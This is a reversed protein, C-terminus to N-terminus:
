QLKVFSNKVDNNIQIVNTLFLKNYIEIWFFQLDHIRKNYMSQILKNILCSYEELSHNKCYQGITEDSTGIIDVVIRSNEMLDNSIMEDNMTLVKILCGSIERLKINKFDELTMEYGSISLQFSHGPRYGFNAYWSKGKMLLYYLWLKTRIENGAVGKFILYSDDELRSRNFGIYNIFCHAFNVLYAGPKLNINNTTDIYHPVTGSKDNEIYGITPDDNISLFLKFYIKTHDNGYWLINIYQCM